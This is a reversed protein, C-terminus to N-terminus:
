KPADVWGPHVMPLKEPDQDPWNKVITEIVLDYM